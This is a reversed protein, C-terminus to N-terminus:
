KRKNYNKKILDIYHTWQHERSLILSVFHIELRNNTAINWIDELQTKAYSSLANVKINTDIIVLKPYKFTPAENQIMCLYLMILDHKKSTNIDKVWIHECELQPIMEFDINSLNEYIKKTHIYCMWSQALPNLTQSTYIDIQHFFLVFNKSGSMYIEVCPDWSWLSHIWLNSKRWIQICTHLYSLTSLCTERCKNGKECYEM